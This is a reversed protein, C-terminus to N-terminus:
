DTKLRREARREDEVRGAAQVRLYMLYMGLSFGVILGVVLGWPSTHLLYTDVAWGIGGWALPAAVFEALMVLGSDADRWVQHRGHDDFAM